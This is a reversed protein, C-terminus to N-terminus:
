LVKKHPSEVANDDEYDNLVQLLVGVSLLITGMTCWVTLCKM